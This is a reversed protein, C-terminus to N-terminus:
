SQCKKGGKAWWVYQFDEEKIKALLFFPGLGFAKKRMKASTM